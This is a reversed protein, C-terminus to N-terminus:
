CQAGAWHVVLHVASTHQAETFNQTMAVISTAGISQMMASVPETGGATGLATHPATCVMHEAGRHQIVANQRQVTHCEQGIGEACWVM